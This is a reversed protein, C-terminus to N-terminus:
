SKGYHGKGRESLEEALRTDVTVGRNSCDRASTGGPSLEELEKRFFFFVM